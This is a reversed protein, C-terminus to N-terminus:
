LGNDEFEENLGVALKDTMEQVMLKQFDRPNVAYMQSLKKIVSVPPYAIGREWNSVFQSSSYGLADSVQKQSFGALTRKEKLFSKVTQKKIPPIQAM